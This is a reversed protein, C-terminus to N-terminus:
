DDYVGITDVIYNLNPETSAHLVRALQDEIAARDDSLQRVIYDTKTSDTWRRLEYRM